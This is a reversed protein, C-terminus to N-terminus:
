KYNVNSQFRNLLLVVERDDNRCFYAVNKDLNFAFVHMFQATKGFDRNKNEKKGWTATTTRQVTPVVNSNIWAFDIHRM